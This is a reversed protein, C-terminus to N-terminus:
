RGASIRVHTIRLYSPREAVSRWLYAIDHTPHRPGPDPPAPKTCEKALQIGAKAPFRRRSVGSM